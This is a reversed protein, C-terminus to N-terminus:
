RWRWRGGDGHGDGCWDWEWDVVLFGPVKGREVVGSVDKRERM